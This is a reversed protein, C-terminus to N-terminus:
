STQADSWSDVWARIEPPYSQPENLLNRRESPDAELDVLELARWNRGSTVVFPNGNHTARLLRGGLRLMTANRAVFDTATLKYPYQIECRVRFDHALTARLATNRWRAVASMNKGHTNVNLRHRNRLCLYRRDESSLPQPASSGTRAVLSRDAVSEPIECNAIDLLTPIIDATTVPATEAREMAAAVSPDVGEPLRFACPVRLLDEHLRGGHHVRAQEPALGEGHDALFCVLTKPDLREVLGDIQEDLASACSTYIRRATDCQADTLGNWRIVRDGLEFWDNRDPHASEYRARTSALYYDHVLNSHVILFFPQRDAARADLFTHARALNEDHDMILEYEDFEDFLGSNRALARNNVFAAKVREPGFCKTLTPETLTHDHSFHLHRRSDRGTLLSTCAPLTWPAASFYRSMVNWEGFRAALKPMVPADGFVADHRLADAIIVVVSTAPNGTDAM